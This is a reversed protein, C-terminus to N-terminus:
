GGFGEPRPCASGGTACVYVSCVRGQVRVCVRAWSKGAAGRQVHGGGRHRHQPDVHVAPAQQGAPAPRAAAEGGAARERENAGRPPTCACVAIARSSPRRLLPPAYPPLCPVACPPAAPFPHGHLLAAAPPPLGTAWRCRSRPWWAWAAWGSRPWSLSSPTRARRRAPLCFMIGVRLLMRSQPGLDRRSRRVNRGLHPVGVAPM